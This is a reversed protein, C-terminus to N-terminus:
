GCRMEAGLQGVGIESRQGAGEAAPRLRDLSGLIESGREVARQPPAADAQEVALGVDLLDAVRRRDRVASLPQLSTGTEPTPVSPPAM